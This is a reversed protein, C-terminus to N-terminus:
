YAGIDPPSPVPAGAYNTTLGPVAVGAGRAPSGAGLTFDLDDLLSEDSLSGASSPEKTLLPDVCLDGAGACPSDRYGFFLNHDEVRKTAGFKELYFPAPRDHGGYTASVAKDAYGLHLNNRLTLTAAACGKPDNCQIDYLVSSYGITTNNAILATGGDAFNFSWTDMARCFLSLNANYTPTAGAIPQSMRACNAVVLNNEAVATTENAGWKLAQGMNGVFTSNTVNLTNAGIAVHGLDIGDQTNYRVDCHDCTFGLYDPSATGLGDGYGGHEQDWCYAAPYRDKIPYQEVCGNWEITLQRAHIAANPANGPPTGGAQDLSWGDSPNYAIRVRNVDIVGGLYGYIGHYGFGHINLDTLTVDHTKGNTLIGENAYDDAPSDIRCGSPLAPSGYRTCPSHDTLELCEVDVFASDALTLVRDVGYGGHLQTKAADSECKGYHEGLIRTPMAATGSPIPPPTCSSAGDLGQCWVDNATLGQEFGVRWPGGRLIVTDGGAIVWGIKGYTHDDYLSRFDNFACRQNVGSGPYPADSKGDCQGDPQHDSHRTGGDARVYWVNAITLTLVATATTPPSAADTVRVTLAASGVATPTGAITGAASLALGAPLVGDGLTWTYPTTGGSAALATSYAVGPAGIPLSTTTITLAGPRLADGRTGGDSDPVGGGDSPGGGADTAPQETPAASGGGCGVLVVLAFVARCLLATRM